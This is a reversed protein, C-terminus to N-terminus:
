HKKGKDKAKALIQSRQSLLLKDDIYDDAVEEAYPDQADEMPDTISQSKSSGEGLQRVMTSLSLQLNTNIEDESKDPNQQLLKLKLCELWELDKKGELLNIPSKGEIPEVNSWFDKIQLITEQYDFKHWWKYFYNIGLIPIEEEDFDAYYGWHWIWPIQFQCLFYILAKKM